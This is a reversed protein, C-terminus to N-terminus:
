SQFSYKFSRSCFNQTDIEKDQLLDLHSLDVIYSQGEQLSAALNEQTPSLALHTVNAHEKFTLKRAHTYFEREAREFIMLVGQDCGCVFGKNLCM